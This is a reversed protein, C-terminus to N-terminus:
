GMEGRRSEDCLVELDAQDPQRHATVVTQRGRCHTAGDRGVCHQHHGRGGAERVSHDIVHLANGLHTPGTNHPQTIHAPTTPLPPLLPHPTPPHTPQPCARGAHLLRAVSLIRRRAAQDRQLAIGALRCANCRRGSAGGVGRVWWWWWVRVIGVGAAAAYTARRRPTGRCTSQQRPPKTSGKAALSPYRTGRKSKETGPTVLM